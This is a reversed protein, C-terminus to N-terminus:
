GHLEKKLTEIIEFGENRSRCIGDPTHADSNVIIKVGLKMLERVIDRRPYFRGFRTFHKTNLEVIIGSDRVADIMDYIHRKYFPEDEIGPSYLSANMAIKDLHGLIDFGGLELMKLSQSFFTDVVYRIDAHFYDEMKKEFSLYSGDIDTPIGEQSPIFHVSGIRFDLPLNIFYPHSPGWDTGLFDIEMGTFIRCRGEFENKLRQAESLYEDVKEFSMNCPSHIPIPSHPSFGYVSIGRDVAARIMEEMSAKGDCFQTHSHFNYNKIGEIERLIDM